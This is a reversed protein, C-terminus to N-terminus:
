VITLVIKGFHQRSEMHTHAKAADELPFTSDIVPKIAGSEIWPWATEKLRKALATKEDIPRDRLTSGTLTLRKRMIKNISISTRSGDLHAISVHRGNDALAKLNLAMTKGGIMDLVVDVGKGNTMDIAADSFDQKKYNIAHNAGLALCKQCKEDSGATTIITCDYQRAMQIALTGIGSGGGHILVNEGRQLQGREFLNNWITFIAEPLAAAEIDSLAEPVPFCLAENACVYEAYGGGSLLACVRQGTDERIGCVELGPLDSAGKPPPYHGLRQLCDPRNIGAATVKILIEGDQPQPKPREVAKLVDPPGFKSIEIAKM